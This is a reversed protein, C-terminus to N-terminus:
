CTFDVSWQSGMPDIARPNPYCTTSTGSTNTYVIQVTYGIQGSNGSSSSLLYLQFHGGQVTTTLDPISSSAIFLISTPTGGNMQMIVNGEVYSYCCQQGLQTNQNQLTSVQNHLSSNQNSLQSNQSQLQSSSQAWGIGLVIVVLVLGVIVALYQVKPKGLRRVITTTAM